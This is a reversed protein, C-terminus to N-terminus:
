EGGFMANLMLMPIGFVVAAIVALAFQAMALKWLVKLWGDVTLNIDTVIVRQENAM